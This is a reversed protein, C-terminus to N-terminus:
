FLDPIKDTAEEWTKAYHIDALIDHYEDISRRPNRLILVVQDAHDQWGWIGEHHPYDQHLATIDHWPVPFGM